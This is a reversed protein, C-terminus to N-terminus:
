AASLRTPSFAATDRALQHLRRAVAPSIGLVKRLQCLADTEAGDEMGDVNAIWAATYFAYERAREDLAAPDCM